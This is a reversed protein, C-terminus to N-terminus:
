TPLTARKVTRRAASGRASVSQRSGVALAGARQGRSALSYGALRERAAFLGADVQVSDIGLYDAVQLSSRGSEALRILRREAPHLVHWGAPAM